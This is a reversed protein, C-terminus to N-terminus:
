DDFVDIGSHYSANMDIHGLDKLRIEVAKKSVNFVKGLDRKFVSETERSVRKYIMEKSFQNQVVVREFARTFTEKPMLLSAALCDAQWEEWDNESRFQRASCEIDQKRCVIYAKNDRMQYQQHTPSHYSRHLLWHAVEHALTFRYRENHKGDALFKEIVVTGECLPVTEKQNQDNYLPLEVDGFAVLGLISGSKLIQRHVITLYCVEEAIHRINLPTAYDLAKPQNENLYMLAINDIDAKKLIFMGNSKQPYNLVM